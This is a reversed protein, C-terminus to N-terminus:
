PASDGQGYVSTAPYFAFWGFWYAVHSPLRLLRQAPDDIRVLAEEEVRWRRGQEDELVTPVEESEKPKALSFRSDGRQYARAAGARSGTVIVLNTGGLSDNVVPERVLQELPYVRTKGNINLGLVEAKTPILDSRQWVPFLNKDYDRYAAYISRFDDEPFYGSAPYVGTNLDLVTTDPHTASWEQWTTLTVPLLELKIGSDALAGVVPEGLFQHWLTMTGRDYMLKNSRYLLGSTGFELTQGNVKTSYM